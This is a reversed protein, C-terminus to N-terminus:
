INHITKQHRNLSDKRMEKNCIECVGKNVKAKECYEKKYQIRKDTKGRKKEYEKSKEAIKKKNNQKYEKIKLKNNDRYEKQYEKQNRSPICMNLSANLEELWYREQKHLELKDNCNYKEIEVMDWNKWNGNARIFKYVNFNYSKDNSNNCRNKHEQKRRYFNTTSGIYIEKIDPNRCCIKYIISQSYNVM